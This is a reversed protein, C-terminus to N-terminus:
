VLFKVSSFLWYSVDDDTEFEILAEHVPKRERTSRRAYSPTAAATAKKKRRRSSSSVSSADFDGDSDGEEDDSSDEDDDSSDDDDDSMADQGGSDEDSEAVFSKKPRGRTAPPKRFKFSCILKNVTVTHKTKLTWM